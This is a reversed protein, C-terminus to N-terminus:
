GLLTVSDLVKKRSKRREPAKARSRARRVGPSTPMKSRTPADPGTKCPDAKPPPAVPAGLPDVCFTYGTVPNVEARKCAPAYEAAFAPAILGASLSLAAGAALAVGFVFVEVRKMSM